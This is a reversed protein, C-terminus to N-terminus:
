DRRGVKVELGQGCYRCMCRGGSCINFIGVQTKKKKSQAAGSNDVTGGFTGWGKLLHKAINGVKIIAMEDTLGTSPIHFKHKM